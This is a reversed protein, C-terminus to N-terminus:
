ADGGEKALSAFRAALAATAEDDFIISWNRASKAIAILRELAEIQKMLAFEDSADWATYAQRM